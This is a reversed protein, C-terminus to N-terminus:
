GLPELTTPPDTLQPCRELYTSYAELQAVQEASYAPQELEAAVADPPVSAAYERLLQLGAAADGTLDEPQPREGITRAWVRLDDGTEMFKVLGAALCFEELVQEPGPSAGETSGSGDTAGTSGPAPVSSTAGATPDAEDGGGCGALAVAAVLAVVPLLRGPRARRRPSTM